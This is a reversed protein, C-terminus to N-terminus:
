RSQPTAADRGQQGDRRRPGRARPGHERPSAGKMLRRLGNREVLTALTKRQEPELVAHIDLLADLTAEAQKAGASALDEQIRALEKKSPQEKALERSLSTQLSAQGKRADRHQERLSQLRASIKAAQAESCSLQVCLGRAHKMGKSSKGAKKKNKKGAKNKKGKKKEAQKAAAPASAPAASAVSAAFALPICLSAARIFAIPSTM